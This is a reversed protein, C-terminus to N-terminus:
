TPLRSRRNSLLGSCMWIILIVAFVYGIYVQFDSLSHDQALHMLHDLHEANTNGALISFSLRVAALVYLLLYVRRAMRRTYLYYQVDDIGSHRAVQLCRGVTAALIVGFLLHINFFKPLPWHLHDVVLAIPGDSTLQICCGLSWKGLGVKKPYMTWIAEEAVCRRLDM